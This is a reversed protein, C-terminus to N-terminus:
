RLAAGIRLCFTALRERQSAPVATPSALLRLLEPEADLLDDLLWRLGQAQAVSAAATQPIAAM